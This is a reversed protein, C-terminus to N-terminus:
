HAHSTDGPRHALRLAGAAAFGGLLAAVIDAPDFTGRLFYSALPQGLRVPDLLTHMALALPERILPHQGCEFAIDIVCWVACAGYRSRADRLTTATLLALVFPHVFSPLSGGLVGFLPRARHWDVFAPMLMAQSPPRDTLYVLMGLAWVLGAVVLLAKAGIRPAAPNPSTDMPAPFATVPSITM